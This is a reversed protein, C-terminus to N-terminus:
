IADDGGDWPTYCNESFFCHQGQFLTLTRQFISPMNEKRRDTKLWVSTTASLLIGSLTNFVSECKLPFQECINATRLSFPSFTLWYRQNNAFGNM